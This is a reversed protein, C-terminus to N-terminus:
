KIVEDKAYDKEATKELWQWYHNPSVGYGPRKVTLNAETFKEGRHIARNAVLSKRVISKNKLESPSAKKISSGLAKEVQRISAVIQKLEDPELSAHHDPGPLTRDLTFHKEIVTAGRAVAAIPIAIGETHDSLGVPLKFTSSLTDMAYLNVDEFPTPYETTCHLLSVKEKLLQQGEPSSYATSFASETPVSGSNLLGFALVSLAQEIEGISSMGTSLIIPKGKQAIYLLLPANTIEGSSIKFKSIGVLQHLIDVSETDFPTSLFEIEKKRCYDILIFHAEIDLELKRLMDLQSEAQNTLRHQYDAKPAHVSVLQEAKFTQFKVADAGVHVAVDILEKAMDLSGNHNVGAEAIIYTKQM